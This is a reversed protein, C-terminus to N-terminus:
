QAPGSLGAIRSRAPQSLHEVLDQVFKEQLAWGRRADADISSARVLLGDPISGTIASKLDIWRKEGRTLVQQNAMTFWYTIPEPRNPMTAFLRKGQISGHSTQISAPEDLTIKFGQAPYCVEPKHAELGGRQDAGYAMALMIQQKDSNVYVRELLQSYLKNLIAETDPSVPRAIVQAAKWNGFQKPVLSELDIEPAKSASSQAVPQLSMGLGSLAVGGALLSLARRRDQIQPTPTSASM